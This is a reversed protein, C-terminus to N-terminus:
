ACFFVTNTQEGSYVREVAKNAAKSKLIADDPSVRELNFGSAHWQPLGGDGSVGNDLCWWIQRQHHVLCHRGYRDLRRDDSSTSVADLASGSPPPFPLGRLVSPTAQRRWARRLDLDPWWLPGRTSYHHNAARHPHLTSAAPVYAPSAASASAPSATAPTPHTCLCPFLYGDVM